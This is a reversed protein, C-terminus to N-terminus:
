KVDDFYEFLYYFKFIASISFKIVVNLWKLDFIPNNNAAVAATQDFCSYCKSKGTVSTIKGMFKVHCKKWTSTVVLNQM